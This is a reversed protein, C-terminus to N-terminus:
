GELDNYEAVLTDQTAGSACWCKRTDWLEPAWLWGESFLILMAMITERFKIFKSKRYIRALRLCSMCAETGSSVLRVQDVFDVMSTIQEAM